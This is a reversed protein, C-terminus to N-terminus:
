SLLRILGRIATSSTRAIAWLEKCSKLWILNNYLPHGFVLIARYEFLDSKPVAITGLQQIGFAFFYM